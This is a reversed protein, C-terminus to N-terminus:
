LIICLSCQITRITIFLLILKVVNINVMIYHGISNSISIVSCYSSNSSGGSYHKNDGIMVNKTWNDVINNTYICGKSCDCMVAVNWEIFLKVSKMWISVKRLDSPSTIAQCHPCLRKDNQFFLLIFNNFDLIRSINFSVNVVYM